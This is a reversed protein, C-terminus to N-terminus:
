NEIGSQCAGCPRALKANAPCVPQNDWVSCIYNGEWGGEWEWGGEGRWARGTEQQNALCPFVHNQHTSFAAGSLKLPFM